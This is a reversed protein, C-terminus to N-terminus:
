VEAILNYMIKNESNIFIYLPCVFVGCRPPTITEISKFILSRRKIIFRQTLLIFWLCRCTRRYYDLISQLLKSYLHLLFRFCFRWWWYRNPWPWCIFRTQLHHLHWCKRFSRLSHMGFLAQILSFDPISVVIYM